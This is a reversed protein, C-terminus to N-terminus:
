RRAGLRDLLLAIFRESQALQATLRANEARLEEACTEAATPLAIPAGQTEALGLSITLADDIGRMEDDSCTAIYGGIRSVDVSTIQECIATSTRGTSEIVVHTPADTRPATTLLVVEVVNETENIDDSSVIVGPRGHWMEAGVTNAHAIYYIEGRKVRM